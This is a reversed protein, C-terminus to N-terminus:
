FPTQSEDIPNDCVSCIYLCAEDREEQKVKQYQGCHQCWREIPYTQSAWQSALDFALLDLATPKVTNMRPMIGGTDLM